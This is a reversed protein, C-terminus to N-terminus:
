IGFQRIILLYGSKVSITGRTGALKNSVGYPKGIEMLGDSLPYMFGELTIGRVDSSMPLLSVTEGERGNIVCSRDIVLLECDKDVIKADVGRKVCMVLLSINALMHDVRGGLAGLIRIEDPNMGFACELALQTDTEDKDRPYRIIGSGKAEFYKLTNEDISDMDGVIFDPTIDSVKLRQAAGDACIVVPNGVSRIEEYLFQPDNVAGGSIVFVMKGM